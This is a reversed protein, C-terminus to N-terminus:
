LAYDRKFNVATDTPERGAVPVAEDDFRVQAGLGLRNGV